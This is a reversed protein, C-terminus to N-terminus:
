PPDFIVFMKLKYRIFVKPNRTVICNPVNAIIIKAIGAKPRTLIIMELKMQEVDNVNYTMLGAIYHDNQYVELLSFEV